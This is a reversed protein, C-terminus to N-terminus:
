TAVVGVHAPYITIRTLLQDAYEEEAVTHSIYNNGPQMTFLTSGEDLESFISETAGNAYTKEVYLKGESRYVRTTEGYALSGNIILYEDTYMNRIGYDSFDDAKTAFEM